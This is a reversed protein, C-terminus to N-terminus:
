SSNSFHALFRNVAKAYGQNFRIIYHEDSRTRLELLHDNSKNKVDIWDFKLIDKRNVPIAFVEHRRNFYILLGEKMENLSCYRLSQLEGFKKIVTDPAKEFVGRPSGTGGRKLRSLLGYPRGSVTYMEELIDKDRYSIHFIKAM